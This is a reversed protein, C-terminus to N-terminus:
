SYQISQHTTGIIDFGDMRTVSFQQTIRVDTLRIDTAVPDCHGVIALPTFPLRDFSVTRDWDIM